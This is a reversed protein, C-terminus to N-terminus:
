SEDLPVSAINPDSAILVHPHIEMTWAGKEDYMWDSLYPCCMLRTWEKGCKVCRGFHIEGNCVSITSVVDTERSGNNVLLATCYHIPDSDLEPGHGISAMILTARLSAPVDPMYNFARNKGGGTAMALATKRPDLRGMM